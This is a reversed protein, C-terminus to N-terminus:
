GPGHNPQNFAGQRLLHLWASGGADPVFDDVVLCHQDSLGTALAGGRGSDDFSERDDRRPFELQGITASLSSERRLVLNEL